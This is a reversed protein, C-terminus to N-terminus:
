FLVAGAESTVNVAVAVKAYDASGGDQEVVVAGHRALGDEFSAEIPEAVDVVDVRGSAVQGLSLGVIGRKFRARLVGSGHDHMSVRVDGELGSVFRRAGRGEAVKGLGHAAGGVREREVAM